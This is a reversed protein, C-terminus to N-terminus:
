ALADRTVEDASMEGLGDVDMLVAWVRVKGATSVTTAAQILVDVTDSTTVL